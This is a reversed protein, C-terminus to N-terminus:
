VVSKRDAAASVVAGPTGAPSRVAPDTVTLALLGPLIVLFPFLMKPVAAILPTRRAATMSEAAMARQVVLFDTCWYGFSLVFGLGMLLGFSEVGISNTAADGMGKWAHTYATPTMQANIAAQTLRYQLLNWGGVARLGLFVLPAFGFVIMFFQLVENYIAASLGGVSIYTFVIIAAVILAVIIALLITSKMADGKTPGAPAKPQEGLWDVIRDM